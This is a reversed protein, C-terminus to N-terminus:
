GEIQNNKIKIITSITQPILKKIKFFLKKLKFRKLVYEVTLNIMNPTINKILNKKIIKNISKM